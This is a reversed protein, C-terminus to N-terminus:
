QASLIWPELLDKTVKLVQTSTPREEPPEKWCMQILDWQEDDVFSASPRRPKIGQHLQIVVQADTRLYHYPM